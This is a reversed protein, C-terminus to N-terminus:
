FISGMLVGKFGLDSAHLAPLYLHVQLSIRNSACASHDILINLNLAKLLQASSSCPASRCSRALTTLSREEGGTNCLMASTASTALATPSTFSRTFSLLTSFESNQVANQFSFTQGNV